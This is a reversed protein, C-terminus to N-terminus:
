LQQTVQLILQHLKHGADHELIETQPHEIKKVINPLFLGQRQYKQIVSSDSPQVEGREVRCFETFERDDVAIVADSHRDYIYKGGYTQFARFIVNNEKEM